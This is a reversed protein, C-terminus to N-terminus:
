EKEIKHVCIKIIKRHSTDLLFTIGNNSSETLSTTEGSDMEKRISKRYKKVIDISTDALKTNSIIFTHYPKSMNIYINRLRIEDDKYGSFQFEFEAFFISKISFDPVFNGKSDYESISIHNIEVTDKINLIKCLDKPSCKHVIISDNNFVLGKGPIIEVQSIM